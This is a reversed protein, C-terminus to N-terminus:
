FEPRPPLLRPQLLTLAPTPVWFLAIPLTAVKPIFTVDVLSPAVLILKTVMEPHQAAFMLAEGGGWSKGMLIAETAEFFHFFACIIKDVDTSNVTGPASHPNSHLNPLLVCHGADAALATATPVWEDIVDEQASKGQLAIVLRRGTGFQRVKVSGLHTPIALEQTAM